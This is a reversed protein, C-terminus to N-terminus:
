PEREHADERVACRKERMRDRTRVALGWGALMGVLLGITPEAGWDVLRVM